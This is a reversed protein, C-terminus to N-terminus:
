EREGEETLLDILPQPNKRLAALAEAYLTEARKASFRTAASDGLARSPMEREVRESVQGGEYRQESIYLSVRYSRASPEYSVVLEVRVMYGADHPSDGLVHSGYFARGELRGSRGFALLAAQAQQQATM